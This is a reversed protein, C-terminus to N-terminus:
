LIARMTAIVCGPLIAPISIEPCALKWAGLIVVLLLSGKRSGSFTLGGRSQWCSGKSDDWCKGNLWVRGRGVGWYQGEWSRSSDKFHLLLWYDKTKNLVSLSHWVPFACVAPTGTGEESRCFPFSLIPFRLSSAPLWMALVAGVFRGSNWPYGIQEKFWWEKERLIMAALIVIMWVCSEEGVVWKGNWGSAGLFLSNVFIRWIGRPM